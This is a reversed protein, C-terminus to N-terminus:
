ELQHYDLSHNEDLAKQVEDSIEGVSKEALSVKGNDGKYAVINLKYKESLDTYDERYHAGRSEKRMNASKLVLESALLVNRLDLNKLVADFSLEELSAIDSSLSEKIEEMKRLGKNLQEESRLIGAHEWMLDKIKDM